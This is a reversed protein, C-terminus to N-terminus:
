RRDAGPEVGRQERARKVDGVVDGRAGVRLVGRLRRLSAGAEERRAEEIAGELVEGTLGKGAFRDVLIAVLRELARRSLAGPAVEPSAEYDPARERVELEGGGPVAAVVVRHGLAGAMRQLMSLSHGRYEDSELKSIVSQTTGVRSALESQTLGAQERLSRLLNPVTSNSPERM